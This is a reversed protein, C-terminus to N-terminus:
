RSRQLFFSLLYCNLLTIHGTEEISLPGAQSLLM